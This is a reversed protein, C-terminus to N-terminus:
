LLGELYEEIARSAKRDQITLGEVNTRVFFLVDVVQKIQERTLELSIPHLDADDDYVGPIDSVSTGPPLNWGSM